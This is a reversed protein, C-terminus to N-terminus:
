QMALAAPSYSYGSEFITGELVWHYSMTRYYYGKWINTGGKASAVPSNYLMLSPGTLVTNWNTGDYRQLYTSVGVTDVVTTANTTGSITMTGPASNNISSYSAYTMLYQNGATSFVGTGASSQDPVFKAVFDSDPPAATLAGDAIKKSS